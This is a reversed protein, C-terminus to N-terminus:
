ASRAFLRSFMMTTPVFSPMTIISDPAFSIQPLAANDIRDLKGVALDLLDARRNFIQDPARALRLASTVATSTSLLIQVRQLRLDARLQLIRKVRLLM